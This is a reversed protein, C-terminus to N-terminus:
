QPENRPGPQREFYDAVARRHRPLVPRRRAAGGAAQAQNLRGADVPAVTATEPAVADIGKLQMDQFAIRDPQPMTRDVYGVDSEDTPEGFIMPAPGPGRGIGGAGGLACGLLACLANGDCAGGACPSGAADERLMAELAQMAAQACATKNTCASLRAADILKADHWQILNTTLVGKEFSLQSLLAELAAANPLGNTWAERLTEAAAAALKPDMDRAQKELAAALQELTKSLGDPAPTQAALERLAETLAALNEIAQMKNMADDLADDSQERIRAALTDLADWAEAPADSFATEALRELQDMWEQALADDPMIEQLLEIQERVQRLDDGLEMRRVATAAKPRHPWFGATLAFATILLVRRWLRSASSRIAVHTPLRVAGKWAEWGPLGESVLLGGCQCRADLLAMASDVGFHRRRFARIGGLAALGVPLGALPWLDAVPIRLGQRLPLLVCGAVAAGVIWGLAAGRGIERGTVAQALKRAQAHLATEKYDVDAM